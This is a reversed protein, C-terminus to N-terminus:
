WLLFSKIKTIDPVQRKIYQVTNARTCVIGDGKMRMEVVLKSVYDSWLEDIRCGASTSRLVYKNSQFQWGWDQRRHVFLAHILHNHLKSSRGISIINGSENMEFFAMDDWEKPLGSIEGSPLFCMTDSVSHGDLGSPLVGKPKTVTSPYSQALFWSRISFTSSCLEDRSIISRLADREEDVFKRFWFGGRILSTATDVTDNTAEAEANALRSAFGVKTKWRTLCVHRWLQNGLALVRLSKSVESVAVIDCDTRLPRDTDPPLFALVEAM